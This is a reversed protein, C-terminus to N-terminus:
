HGIFPLRHYLTVPMSSSRWNKCRQENWSCDYQIRFLSIFCAMSCVFNFSAWSFMSHHFIIYTCPRLSCATCQDAGATKKFNSVCVCVNSRQHDKAEQDHWHRGAQITLASMNNIKMLCSLSEEGCIRAWWVFSVLVGGYRASIALGLCAISVVSGLQICSHHTAVCCSVDRTHYDEKGWPLISCSREFLAPCGRTARNKRRNGLAARAWSSNSSTAAALANIRSLSFAPSVVALKSGNEISAEGNHNALQCLCHVHWIRKM